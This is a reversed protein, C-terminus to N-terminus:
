AETLNVGPPAQKLFGFGSPLTWWTPQRFFLPCQWSSSSNTQQSVVSYHSQIYEPDHPVYLQNWTYNSQDATYFFITDHVRGYHKSGQKADSHGSQRKWVIENQFNNEGLIHDLMV